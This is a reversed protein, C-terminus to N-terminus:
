SIPKAALATKLFPGTVQEFLAYIASHEMVEGLLRVDKALLTAGHSFDSPSSIRSAVEFGFSRGSSVKILQALAIRDIGFEMGANLAEFGLAVQAAMLSNNILKALQGAGVDGLHVILGAFTEFVPRAAAVMAGDGGVMVTLTGAAAGQGGGSVPADIVAIGREGARRALDRCTDPHVTSHIVIRSGAGMAPLLEAFVQRVGEDDVVCVAVHECAKGLAAISPAFTADTDRYPDLSDARRAWLTLPYGAEVMRRAMPGGQSGLGIFGTSIKVDTV